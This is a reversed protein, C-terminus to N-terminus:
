LAAAPPLVSARDEELRFAATERCAGSLTGELPLVVDQSCKGHGSDWADIVQNAELSTEVEDQLVAASHREV